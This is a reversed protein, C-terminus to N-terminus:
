FNLGLFEFRGLRALAHETNKLAGVYNEPKQNESGRGQEKRKIKAQKREKEKRKKEKRKKGKKKKKKRKRKEIKINGETAATAQLTETVREWSQLVPVTPRVRQGEAGRGRRGEGAEPDDRVKTSLLTESASQVIKGDMRMDFAGRNATKCTDPALPLTYDFM